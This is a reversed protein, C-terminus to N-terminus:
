SSPNAEYDSDTNVIIKASVIFGEADEQLDLSRYRVSGNKTEIVIFRETSCLIAFATLAVFVVAAIWAWGAYPIFIKSIVALAASLFTFVVGFYDVRSQSKIESVTSLPISTVVSDDKALKYLIDERIVLKTKPLKLDDM